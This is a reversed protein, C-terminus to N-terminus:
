HRNVQTLHGGILHSNPELGLPRQLLQYFLLLTLCHSYILTSRWELHLSLGYLKYNLKIQM